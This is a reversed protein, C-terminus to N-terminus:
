NMYNFGWVLDKEAKEEEEGSELVGDGEAM